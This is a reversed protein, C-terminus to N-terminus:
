ASLHMQAYSVFADELPRVLEGIKGEVAFDLIRYSTYQKRALFDQGRHQNVLLFLLIKQLHSVRLLMEEKRPRESFVRGLVLGADVHEEAIHATCGVKSEDSALFDRWGSLGRYSPLLTPHYNVVQLGGFSDTDIIRSFFLNVVINQSSTLLYNSAEKSFKERSVWPIVKYDWGLAAAVDVAGCHRDCALRVTVDFGAKRFLKYGAELAGGATSCIAALHLVDPSTRPV